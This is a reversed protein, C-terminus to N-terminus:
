YLKQLFALSNQISNSLSNIILEIFAGHVSLWSTNQAPIHLVSISTWWEGSFIYVDIYSKKTDKTLVIVASSFLIQRIKRQPTWLEHTLWAM